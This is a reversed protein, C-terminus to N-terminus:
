CSRPCTACLSDPRITYYLCCGTRTRTYGGDPDPSPRFGAGGMYPATNGPLLTDAARTAAAEEGLHRGIHWIGGALQDTVMGWLARPRRRVLPRFADLVPGTQRAVSARLEARLAEEGSLVRVGPLAAARDGPLCTLGLPRVAFARNQWAYRIRDLPLWPVRRQLYWPGSLTLCATFLYRQLAWTAAVDRRPPQGYVGRIREAEVDVLHEVREPEAAIRSGRVWDDAGGAGTDGGGTDRVEHEREGDGAAIRVLPSVAELRTYTDAVLASWTPTAVDSASVLPM